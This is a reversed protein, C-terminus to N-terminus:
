ITFFTRSLSHRGEERGETGPSQKGAKWPWFWFAKGRWGDQERYGM